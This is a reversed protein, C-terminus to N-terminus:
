WWVNLWAPKQQRVDLAGVLQKFLHSAGSSELQQANLISPFTKQDKKPSFIAVYLM